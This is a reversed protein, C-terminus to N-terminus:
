KMAPWHDPLPAEAYVPENTAPHMFQAKWAHLGIRNPGFSVQSGYASDGVVPWGMHAFQARIQHYRGTELRVELFHYGNGAGLYKYSLRAEKTHGERPDDYVLLKKQMLDKYVHHLLRAEPPQPLQETLALYTKSLRHDEQQEALKKLASKKKVLIMIGSTPRDIRNLLFPAPRKKGDMYLIAWEEVSPNKARDIDANLGAPKDVILLTDDELIIRPQLSNTM